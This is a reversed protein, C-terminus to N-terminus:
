ENNRRRENEQENNRGEDRKSKSMTKEEKMGRTNNRRREDRKNLLVNYIPTLQGVDRNLAEKQKRIHIPLFCQIPINSLQIGDIINEQVLPIFSSSVTCSPHFFYFCHALALPIFSSAILFLIFSFSVVFSPLFLLGYM